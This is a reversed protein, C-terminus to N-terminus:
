HPQHHARSRSAAGLADLRVLLARAQMELVPPLKAALLANIRARWYDPSTVPSAEGTDNDHVLHELRLIMTRIHVLDRAAQDAYNM